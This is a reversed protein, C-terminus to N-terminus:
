KWIKLELLEIQAKYSEVEKKWAEVKELLGSKTREQHEYKLTSVLFEYNTIEQELLAINGKMKEMYIKDSETLFDNKPLPIKGDQYYNMYWYTRNKEWITLIEEPTKGTKEAYLNARELVWKYKDCYKHSCKSVRICCTTMGMKILEPNEEPVIRTFEHDCGNENFCNEGEKTDQLVADRFSEIGKEMNFIFQKLFGLVSM